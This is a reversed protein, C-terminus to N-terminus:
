EKRFHNNIYEILERGTLKVSSPGNRIYFEEDDKSKLFVPKKSPFCDIRLVHRDEIPYLEFRIFPLFESGIYHKLLNTFHLGLADNDKFKDKELGQVKGSDTVGVLLTGGQSNMFAALTKMNAHEIRHDIDSTHINIRLTSKFELKSGEGKSILNIIEKSSEELTNRVGFIKPYKNMQKIVFESVVKMRGDKIFSYGALSVLLAGLMNVVLDQMTDIASEQLTTNMFTDLAFEIVEWVTGMALSFSFTLFAIIFPNATIKKDKYLVYLITLGVISLAIAAAFNLLVDWWWFGAFVGRVDGLFLVGYIFLLILVEYEAPFNAGFLAKSIQPLFTAIFGIISFILVLPRNSYLSMLFALILLGRIINLLLFNVSIKSKAM